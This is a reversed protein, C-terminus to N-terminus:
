AYIGELRPPEGCPLDSMVISTFRVAELTASARSRARRGHVAAAAIISTASAPQELEPDPLEDDAAAAGVPVVALV